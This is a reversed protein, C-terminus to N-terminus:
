KKVFKRGNVIYVGKPLSELSRTGKKVMTGSLSYVDFPQGDSVVYQVGNFIPDDSVPTITQTNGAEQSPIRLYAENDSVLSYGSDGAIIFLQIGDRFIYNAFGDEVPEIRKGDGLVGVLMNSSYTSASTVREALYCGSQGVLLLGTGAAADSIRQMKVESTAANYDTAIFAKLGEVHSFDLDSEDCYTTMIDGDLWIAWYRDNGRVDTITTGMSVSNENEDEYGWEWKYIGDDFKPYTFGTKIYTDEGPNLPIGTGGSRYIDSWEGDELKRRCYYWVSGEFVTEGLNKWTVKVWPENSYVIGDVANLVQFTMEIRANGQNDNSLLFYGGYFKNGDFKAAFNAEYQKPVNLKAPANATGVGEFFKSNMSAPIDGTFTVKSLKTCGYFADGVDVSENSTFQNGFIVNTLNVCSMFLNRLSTVNRTDFNSVDLSALNSCKRFMQALGTDTVNRTDFRSVDLRTLSSCGNFLSGMNTVNRTDFGSVDLSTLSSCDSFMGVMYTVNSTNFNSVDLSTLSSCGNFMSHMHTVNGTDFNSVDLSSLNSCYCFMEDMRTVNRTDFKSVNLSSLSSCKYFMRAMYKVNATNFNSVDLSTLNTCGEFMWGMDQVDSTNLYGIGEIDKLYSCGQFWYDTTIPRANIFSPDFVAKTITGKHELWLPPEYLINMRYTSGKRSNRLNDCYFTLIGDNYAVYSEGDGVPPNPNPNVSEGKINYTYTTPKSEVLVPTTMLQNELKIDGGNFSSSAILKISIIAGSTGEIVDNTGSYLLLRTIGNTTNSTLTHKKWTTRGAIDIADDGTAISLGDPLHLDFQVMTVQDEPNLMDILMTKTEGAKIDFAEISLKATGKDLTTPQPQPQPETGEVFFAELTFDTQVNSITYKGNSVSSSVDQGDKLLKQLRHGDAPTINFSASQGKTIGWVQTGIAVDESSYAVKGGQTATVVAFAKTYSSREFIHKFLYWENSEQYETKKGDPVVLNATEVFGQFSRADVYALKPNQTCSVFDTVSTCDGFVDYMGMLTESGAIYITKLSTCGYFSANGISVDYLQSTKMDAPFYISRLGTCGSFAGAQNSYAPGWIIKLSSPFTIAKLGTCGSFSSNDIEVLGEPLVISKLDTCEWFAWQGISKVTYTKGNYTVTAPIAVDGSYKSNGSIVMVAQPDNGLTEYSIGGVQFTTTAASALMPLLMALFLLAIKKM